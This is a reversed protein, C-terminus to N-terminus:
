VSKILEEIFGNISTYRKSAELAAKRHLESDIHVNFSGRYMNEPEKENKACLELYEDIANRFGENLAVVSNGEFTIPTKIGLVKGRFLAAQKDFIVSGVYGKYNLYSSVGPLDEDEYIFIEEITKDFYHALKFALQISPNYRGNELSSITQRSVDMVKALEGQRIGKEKRIEELKNKMVATSVKTETVDQKRSLTM